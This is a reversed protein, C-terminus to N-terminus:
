EDHDVGPEAPSGHVVILRRAGNVDTVEATRLRVVRAGPRSPAVTHTCARNGEGYVAELREAGLLADRTLM